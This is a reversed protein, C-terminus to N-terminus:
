RCPPAVPATMSAKFAADRSGRLFGFYFGAIVPVAMIAVAVAAAIQAGKRVRANQWPIENVFGGFPPSYLDMLKSLRSKRLVAPAPTAAAPSARVGLSFAFASGEMGLSFSLSSRMAAQEYGIRDMKLLRPWPLGADWSSFFFYPSIVISSKGCNVFSVNAPTVWMSM